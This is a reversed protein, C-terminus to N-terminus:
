FQSGKYRSRRPCRPFLSPKNFVHSWTVRMPLPAEPAASFYPSPASFPNIHFLYPAEPDLLLTTQFHSDMYLSQLRLPLPAFSPHISLFSCRIINTKDTITENGGSIQSKGETVDKFPTVVKTKATEVASALLTSASSNRQNTRPSVLSAETFTSNQVNISFETPESWDVSQGDDVGVSDGSFQLLHRLLHM